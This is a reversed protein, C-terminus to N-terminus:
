AGSHVLVSSAGPGSIQSGLAGGSGLLPGASGSPGPEALWGGPAFVWPGLGSVSLKICWRTSAGVVPLSHTPPPSISGWRPSGLINQSLHLRLGSVFM